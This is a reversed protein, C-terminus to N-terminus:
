SDWHPKREINEMIEMLKEKGKSLADM